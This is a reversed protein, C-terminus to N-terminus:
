GLGTDWWLQTDGVQGPAGDWGPDGQGELTAGGWRPSRMRGRHEVM